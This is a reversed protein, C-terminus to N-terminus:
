DFELPSGLMTRYPLSLDIMYGIWVLLRRKESHRGFPRSLTDVQDASATVPSPYAFM